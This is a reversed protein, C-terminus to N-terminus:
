TTEQITSKSTTEVIINEATTYAQSCEEITPQHGAFKINDMKQLFLEADIARSQDIAANEKLATALEQSTKSGAAISFHSEFYSRLDHTLSMIFEEALQKDFRPLAQLVSLKQKAQQLPAPVALAMMARKRPHSTLKYLWTLLCFLLTCMFIAYWPTGMAQFYHEDYSAHEQDLKHRTTSSLEIPAHQWQEILPAENSAIDFPSTKPLNVELPIIPSLLEVAPLPPETSDNPRFTVNLLTLAYQGPLMPELRYHIQEAIESIDSRNGVIHKESSSHVLSFPLLTNAGQPRLLHDLLAEEDPHYNAPYSLKIEVMIEQPIVVPADANLLTMTVAFATRDVHNM